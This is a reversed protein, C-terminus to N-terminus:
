FPTCLKFRELNILDIIVSNISLGYGPSEGGERLCLARM